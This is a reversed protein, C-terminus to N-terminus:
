KGIDAANVVRTATATGDAARTGVLVIGDGVAFSSATEASKKTGFQTASTVTVTVTAGKRTLVTWSSGDISQITARLAVRGPAKGTTGVGVAPAPTPSPAQATTSSTLSATVAAGVGWATLGSVLVVAVVGAAIGTGVPHRRFTSQRKADEPVGGNTTLGTAGGSAAATASVPTPEVQIQETPTPRVPIQETPRIGPKASSGPQASSGPKRQSRPKAPTRADDDPTNATPIKAMVILSDSSQQRQALGM